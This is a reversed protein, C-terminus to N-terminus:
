SIGQVQIHMISEFLYIKSSHPWQEATTFHFAKVTKYRESKYSLTHYHQTLNMVLKQLGYEM